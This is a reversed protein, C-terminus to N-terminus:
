ADFTYYATHDLPAAPATDNWPKMTEDPTPADPAWLSARTSRDASCDRRPPSRERRCAPGTDPPRGSVPPEVFIIKGDAPSM